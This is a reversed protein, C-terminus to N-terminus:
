CAYKSLQLDLIRSVKQNNFTAIVNEAGAKETFVMEAIVTPSSTVIKCSQMEGGLPIMASEIDASTTGPAFNSGVVVYPGAIGRISMGNGNGRSTARMDTGNRGRDVTRMDYPPNERVARIGQIERSLRSVRAAKTDNTHHLDHGWTTDISSQLRPTSSVSRSATPRM